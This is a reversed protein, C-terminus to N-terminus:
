GTSWKRIPPKTLPRTTGESGGFRSPPRLSSSRMRGTSARWWKLPAVPTALVVRGAGKARAVQCAVSATAGTAVGDDVILATVGELSTQVRGSRFLALRSALIEQERATVRAVDQPSVGILPLLDENMVTVGGEGIAGM